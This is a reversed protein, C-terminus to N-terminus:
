FQISVAPLAERIRHREEMPLPCDVLTLTSLKELGSLDDPLKSIKTGGLSINRIAPLAAIWDPFASIAANGDLAIDELKEMGKLQEPVASLRCNRAYIRRLDKLAALSEPLASVGTGNLRLWRLRSAEGLSAPLNTVGSRDLNLYSLNPNKSFLSPPLERLRANDGLYLHELAPLSGDAAAAPVTEIGTGAVDLEKLAPLGAFFGPASLDAATARGRLLLRELAARDCKSLAELSRAEPAQRPAERNDFCGASIVTAAAALVGALTSNAIKM